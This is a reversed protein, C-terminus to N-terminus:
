QGTPASRSTPPSSTAIFSARSTRPKSPRCLGLCRRRGHASDDSGVGHRRSQRPLSLVQRKSAVLSARTRRAVEGMGGAGIAGIIEYRGLRAGPLLIM